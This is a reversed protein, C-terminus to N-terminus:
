FNTGFFIANTQSPAVSALEYEIQPKNTSNNAYYLGNRYNGSPASDLYDYDYNMVCIYIDSNDEMHGKATANLEMDNYASTSWTSLENSYNIITGGWGQIADFDAGGLTSIDSTAQVAIVDGTGYNTGRLKLIASDVEASIGSTDFVFFSRTVFYTIVGGKGAVRASRIASAYSTRTSSLFDGSAADRASAWIGASKTIYGDSTEATITPM